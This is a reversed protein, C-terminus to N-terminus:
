TLYKPKTFRLVKKKEPLTRKGDVFEEEDHKIKTHSKLNQNSSFKKNCFKCQHKKSKEDESNKKSCLILHKKMYANRTFTKECNECAFQPKKEGHVVAKQDVLTVHSAETEKSSDVETEKSSKVETEKSSEVETEKSSDTEKKNEPIPVHQKMHKTCIDESSFHLKCKKCYFAKLKEIADKIFQSSEVCVAARNKEKWAAKMKEVTENNKHVNLHLHMNEIKLFKKFCVPCEHKKSKNSKVEETLPMKITGPLTEAFSSLFLM